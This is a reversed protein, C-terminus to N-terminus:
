NTSFNPPCLHSSTSICIKASRSYVNRGSMSLQQPSGFFKDKSFIRFCSFIRALEYLCENLIDPIGNGSEPINLSDGFSEPFLEYAYLIHGLAVAAATSYRGFDGADHWGGCMDFTQPNATKAVYDELLVVPKTHCAAHTYVGAYKAELACGCRQFYLAKMLDKHLAGYPKDAVEFTHSVQGDQGALYYRGAKTLQSFDIEYAEEGAAEDFGKAVAEVECVAQEAEAEFVRYTGAQTATAVKKAETMYGVQNLYIGM